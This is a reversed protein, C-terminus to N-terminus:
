PIGCGSEDSLPRWPQQPGAHDVPENVAWCMVVPVLLRLLFTCM